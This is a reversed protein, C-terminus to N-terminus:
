GIVEWAIEWWSPRHTQSEPLGQTDVRNKANL